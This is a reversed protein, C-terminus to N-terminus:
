ECSLCPLSVEYKCTKQYLKLYQGTTQELDFIHLHIPKLVSRQSQYETDTKARVVACMLASCIILKM